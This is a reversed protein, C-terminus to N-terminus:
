KVQEIILDSGIEISKDAKPLIELVYKSKDKPFYMECEKYPDEEYTCPKADRVIHVVKGENDIWILSLNLLTDKMWFSYIGDKDFIFIMGCNPCLYERNQLGKAKDRAIEAEIVSGDPLKVKYFDTSYVTDHSCSLFFIQVIFFLRPIMMPM